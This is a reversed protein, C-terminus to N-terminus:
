AVVYYFEHYFQCEGIALYVFFVARRDVVDDFEARPLGNAFDQFAGALSGLIVTNLPVAAGAAIAFVSSVAIILLDQVSAFRFLTLWTVKSAIPTETQRRLVSAEHDTLREFPDFQIGNRKESVKSDEGPKGQAAAAM